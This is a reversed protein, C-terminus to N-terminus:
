EPLSAYIPIQIFSFVSHAFDDPKEFFFTSRSVPFSHYLSPPDVIPGHTASGQGELYVGHSPIPVESILSHNRHRLGLTASLSCDNWPSQVRDSRISSMFSPPVKSIPSYRLRTLQDYDFWLGGEGGTM